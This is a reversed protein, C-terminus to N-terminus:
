EKKRKKFNYIMGLTIFEAKLQGVIGKFETFFFLDNINYHMGAGYNIGFADTKETSNLYNEKEETYNIGFLPYVGLRKNLQLIYHANVNLELISKEVSDGINQSPFYSIEPGFCFAESLGYYFRGNMGYLSESLELTPGLGIIISQNDETGEQNQTYISQSILLLFVFTKKYEQM